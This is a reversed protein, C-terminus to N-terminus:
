VRFIFKKIRDEGVAEVCERVKEISEFYICGFKENVCYDCAIDDFPTGIYIVWHKNYGNWERDEPEAFKKM